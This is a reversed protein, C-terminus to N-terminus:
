RFTGEVVHQSTQAYDLVLGPTWTMAEACARWLALLWM